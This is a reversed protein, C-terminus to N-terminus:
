FFLANGRALAMVVAGVFLAVTLWQTIKKMGVFTGVLYDFEGGNGYREKLWRDALYSSFACWVAVSLVQLNATINSEDLHFAHCVLLVLAHLLAAAIIQKEGVTFWYEQLAEKIDSYAQKTVTTEM